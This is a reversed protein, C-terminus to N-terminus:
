RIKLENNFVYTDSGYFEPSRWAAFVTRTKEDIVVSRSIRNDKLLVQHSHHHSHVDDDDDDDDDEKKVRTARLWVEIGQLGQNGVILPSLSLAMEHHSVIKGKDDDRDNHDDHHHNKNKNIVETTKLKNMSSSSSSSSTNSTKKVQIAKSIKDMEIKIDQEMDTVMPSSAEEEDSKLSTKIVVEGSGGVVSIGESSVSEGMVVDDNHAQGLLVINREEMTSHHPPPPHSPRDSKRKSKSKSKSKKPSSSSSSSPKLLHKKLKRPSSGGSLMAYKMSKSSTTTTTTPTDEVACTFHADEAYGKM